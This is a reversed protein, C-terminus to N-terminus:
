GEGGSLEAELDAQYSLIIDSRRSKLKRAPIGLNVTWPECNKTVLSLAGIAAGTGITVGPLIVSGVGIITHEELVVPATHVHRYKAPITPNTMSNGLFDDSSAYISVRSSLGAYNKLVIKEVAFLGCYAAIHIFSGLVIHGSLICFDDIRVNDGIEIQEPNYFSAKRSIYINKGFRKLGIQWIEDQNFFSTKM